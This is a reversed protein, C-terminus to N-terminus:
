AFADKVRNYAPHSRNKVKLWHKSRGGQYPNLGGPMPPRLRKISPIAGCFVRHGRKRGARVPIGAV